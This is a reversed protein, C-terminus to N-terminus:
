ANKGSDVKRESVSRYPGRDVAEPVRARYEVVARDAWTELITQDKCSNSNAVAIYVAKWFDQEEPTKLQIM